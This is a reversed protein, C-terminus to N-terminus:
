KIGRLLHRAIRPDYQRFYTTYSSGTSNNVEDDKLMGNFGYAYSESNGNRNPM